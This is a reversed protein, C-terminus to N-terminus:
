FGPFQSRVQDLTVQDPAVIILIQRGQRSLLTLGAEDEWWRAGGAEDGSSGAQRLNMYATFAEFLEIADAETDWQSLEALLRRGAGDIWLTYGDGDWGAAGDSAGQEDLRDVLWVLFGAEGLVDRDLEHWPNGLAPALNPLSITAPREDALYKEPHMVQETSIPPHRYAQNVREWTFNGQIYLSLVFYEGANYPFYTFVGLAPSVGELSPKQQFLYRYVTYNLQERSINQYTFLDEVLRADGEPLSRAALQADASQDKPLFNNLDFYNDQLAHVYEHAFTMEEEAFMNVSEAIIYMVKEKPAYYGLIIDTQTDLAAEVLDVGPQILGLARYFEQQTQVAELAAKDYAQEPWQERLQRRTLFEIPLPEPLSLERWQEVFGTIDRIKDKNIDAPAVVYTATPTPEPTVVLEPLAATPRPTITATPSPPTTPVAEVPAQTSHQAVPQTSVGLLTDRNIFLVAGIGTLIACLMLGLGGLIILQVLTLSPKQPPLTLPLEAVAAAPTTPKARPRSTKKPQEAAEALWDPLEDSM